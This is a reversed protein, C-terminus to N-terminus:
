LPVIMIIVIPLFAPMAPLFVPLQLISSCLIAQVSSIVINFVFDTDNGVHIITLTLAM